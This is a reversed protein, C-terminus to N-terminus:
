LFALAPILALFPLTDYWPLTSSGNPPSFSPMLNQFGPPPTVPMTANDLIEDPIAGTGNGDEDNEDCKLRKYEQIDNRMGQQYYGIEKYHGGPKTFGTGWFMEFNGIADRIPDYKKLENELLYNKWDLNQRLQKCRALNKPACLGEPDVAEVPNNGAYAFLNPGGNFGSPDAEPYRGLTPDYDRMMNYNLLDEADAYQGPFRHNTPTTNTPTAYTEGFPEQERDWVLTRSANTIKQPNNVQDSHVYVINGSSDIQALMQGEMWVYEIINAGTSDNAEGIIHGALDFHYDTTAGTVAKQVRQGLANIKFTITPTGVTMSELRDRGGYTNSIAVGGNMVRDDTLMNGSASNTFHRTNTGDTISALLNTSTTLTSTQTTGGYVRTLRNGNNDYTYTRSGYAGSATHLRNLSDVTYTEDRGAALNDTIGTLNGAYDQTYTLNQIHTAGDSTVIDDLWYNEDFTNTQSLTNGLTFSVIPGFPEHVISSALTTVTGGSSPKTTVTTQYGHTDYTYDVYRGSPYIIETLRNALDYSYSTTYTQTGIVRVSSTVNGFNDYIFTTSGSEDTVKTLRHIGKNGGTTSDYTYAINEGSYSPYTETLPRDLADFTRDTEVSRADTRKTQNGDKDYYFIATGTDPSAKQIAADPFGDFVFSTSYGDFDTQATINDRADYTPAATHTLADTITSARNLADWATSTAKSNADTVSTQNQNGDWAFSTTQTAGASGVATLRDGLVDFTATGTKEVTSSSNKYNWATIDSMADLTYNITENAGNTIKTLRHANDYTYTITDSGSDPLTVVDLKGDAYYSYSTVENTGAKVTKSTLRNRNDYALDTEVSNADTIKTPLGGGTYTNITVVNSLADTISTLAGSTYAYTTKATVDTRPLQATLMEGTANYTYTWTRAQGNTSYPISTSTTDTLKRTLLNGTTADYRNDITVGTKTITYPQRVWTSDYSITTTRAVGSGYGEVITTPLGHSNNTWHTSNGNWDTATALYGNTDYTFYRSAATVPSSAARDIESVKPVGQLTTFKYTETEGLPNTVTRNGTSDDYSIQFEDAGGAHQASTARGAGDYTWSAYTNGNEDTISTLMFPLLTNAYVYTQSTSPSTNYTVSTLLDSGATSTYGYTLTASDPTSVGTLDSGTYSLTLTRSYSDSVSTLKGSTYTLTQTYGNRYAISNLTGKGSAVTYTEVTSDPTTLTYTTGSNTLKYDVDTDPTWVSSVLKFNIVRGDAREATVLSSSIYRLYRDYNSRWNPGLATPFLSHQQSYSNYSRIFALPNTGVTTYDTVKEYVNGTAVNFPDAVVSNGGFNLPSSQATSVQLTSVNTTPDDPAPTSPFSQPDTDTTSSCCGDAKADTPLGTQGTSVVTYAGAGSFLIYSLTRLMYTGTTFIYGPGYTRTAPNGAGGFVSSGNPYFFNFAANQSFGSGPTMTITFTDGSTANVTYMGMSANSIVGPTSVGSYLATSDGPLGSVSLDIQFSGTFTTWTSGLVNKATVKWTGTANATGGSRCGPTQAGCGAGIFATGSPDYINFGGDFKADQTVNTLGVEISDGSVAYFYFTQTGTGTVSGSETGGNGIAHAPQAVILSATFLALLIFTLRKVTGRM